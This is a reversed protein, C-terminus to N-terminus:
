WFLLGVVEFDVLGAFVFDFSFASGIDLFLVLPSFCFSVVAAAM